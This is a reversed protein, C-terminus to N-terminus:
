IAAAHTGSRAASVAEFDSKSVDIEMISLLRDGKKLLKTEFASGGEQLEDVIVGTPAEGLMAGLPKDLSVTYEKQRRFYDFEDDSRVPVEARPSLARRGYRPASAPLRPGPLFASLAIVLPLM